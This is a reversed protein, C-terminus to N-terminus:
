GAARAASRALALLQGRHRRHDPPLELEAQELAGGPHRLPLRGLAHLLQHAPPDQVADPLAEVERMVPDALRDRGTEQRRAPLHQVPLHRGGDFVEVGVSQLRVRRREAQVVQVGLSPVLRGAIQKLGALLGQPPHCMAFGDDAQIM